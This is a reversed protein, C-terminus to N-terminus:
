ALWLGAVVSSAVMRVAEHVSAYRWLGSYLGTVAFIVLGGAVFLPLVHLAPNYDQTPIDGDFRIWLAVILAGALTLVDLSFLGALRIRRVIAEGRHCKTGSRLPEGQSGRGSWLGM